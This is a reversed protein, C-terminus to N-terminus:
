LGKNMHEFLYAFYKQKASTIHKKSISIVAPDVRFRNESMESVHLINVAFSQHCRIFYEEPLQKLIEDMKGYTQFVTKDEMHLLIMKDRSEIYQIDRCYVRYVGGKHRFSIQEEREKSLDSLAQDLIHKLKERNLPKILYNFAFVDYAEPYHENSSSVFIIKIDKRDSRLQQATDIGSLEPMYIDLFLLDWLVEHEKCAALLSEGSSYTSIQFAPDYHYLAEALTKIDEPCDDCIGIQVSM